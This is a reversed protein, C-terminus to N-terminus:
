SKNVHINNMCWSNMYQWSCAPSKLSQQIKRTLIKPVLVQLYFSQLKRPYNYEMCESWISNRRHLCWVTWVVFHAWICKKTAMEGQVQFYYANTRKLRLREDGDYELFFSKHETANDAITKQTVQIKDLSFPCKIELVGPNEWWPLSPKQHNRRRIGRPGELLVVHSCLLSQMFIYMIATISRVYTYTRLLVLPQQKTSCADYVVASKRSLWAWTGEDLPLLCCITCSLAPSKRVLRQRIRVICQLNSPDM